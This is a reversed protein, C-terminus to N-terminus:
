DITLNKAWDCAKDKAMDINDRVKSLGMKGVLNVKKASFLDDIQKEINGPGGLDTYFYAINLGKFDNNALFSRIAPVYSGAWVPTGIIILDYDRIDINLPSIEPEKRRMVQSAGWLIKRFGKKRKEDIVYLRRKDCDLSDAIADAILATAGEYSYYILLTKM